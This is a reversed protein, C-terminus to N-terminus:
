SNITEFMANFENYTYLHVNYFYLDKPYKKSQSIVAMFDFRDSKELLALVDEKIDVANLGIKQVLVKSAIGYLESNCRFTKYDISVNVFFKISGAKPLQFFLKDKGLFNDAYSFYYNNLANLPKGLVNKSDFEASRKCKVFMETM